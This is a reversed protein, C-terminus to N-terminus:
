GLTDVDDTLVNRQRSGRRLAAKRRENRRILEEDPMEAGAYIQDLRAQEKQERKAQREKPTTTRVDTGGAPAWILPPDGSAALTVV